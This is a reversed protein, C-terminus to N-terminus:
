AQRAPKAPRESVAIPSTDRSSRRRPDRVIAYLPVVLHSEDPHDTFIEVASELKGPRLGERLRLTLKYEVGDEVSSLSYSIVDPVTVRTVALPRAGRNRIYLDREPPSEGRTTGFTVQPPLVIVDGEVSGFVPLTITPERPSTTRLVLKESFRGLPMDRDLEVILRQGPADPLPELRAHLAPHAREITTVSYIAAPTGPTILVERRVGQGRRVRGLYLPTPTVVLDANVQGSLALGVVPSTPDNTYVSVIKTTRGALKATDLTVAVRGESGPPVDRESLVAVTCGCTSKVQEIRLLTAGRNMLRFTHEVRAGREVTGFDFAPQDLALRPTDQCLGRAACLFVALGVGGAWRKRAGARV